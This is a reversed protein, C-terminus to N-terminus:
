KALKRVRLTVGEVSEVTVADSEYLIEDAIARWTEDDMRVMGAKDPAISRTVIAPAGILRDVNTRSTTVSMRHRIQRRGVAIYLVSLGIAMILMLPISGVLLGAFGSILLVSGILVMDLGSEIGVVLELLILLLGVVIFIQPLYTGIFEM